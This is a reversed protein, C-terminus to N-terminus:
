FRCRSRFEAFANQAEKNLPLTARNGPVEVNLSGRKEFIAALEQPQPLSATIEVAELAESFSAKGGIRLRRTSTSLIIAGTEGEKMGLAPSGPTMTVEKTSVQCWIFLLGVDSEPLAYSLGWAQDGDGHVSWRFRPEAADATCSLGALFVFACLLHKM